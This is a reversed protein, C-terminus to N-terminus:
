CFWAGRLTCGGHGSPSNLEQTSSVTSEPCKLRSFLRRFRASGVNRQVSCHLLFTPKRANKGTKCLVVPLFWGPAASSCKFYRPLSKKTKSGSFKIIKLPAPRHSACAGRSKARRGAPQECFAGRNSESLFTGARFIFSEHCGWPGHGLRRTRRKALSFNFLLGPREPRGCQLPTAIPTSWKPQASHDTVAIFGSPQMKTSLM